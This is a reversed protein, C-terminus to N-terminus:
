DRGERYLKIFGDFAIVSGTARLVTKGDGTAFDAAIQDLVAAEMQCALTRKWILSYLKLQDADLYRAVQDPHRFVDTPRIAEHAEQANKTKSKYARPSAPMYRAGYDREIFRRCAAIAEGAM